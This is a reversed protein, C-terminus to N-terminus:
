TQLNRLGRKYDCFVEITKDHDYETKNKAMTM